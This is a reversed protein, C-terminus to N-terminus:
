GWTGDALHLRRRKLGFPRRNVSGISGNVTESAGWFSRLMASSLSLEPAYCFFFASKM